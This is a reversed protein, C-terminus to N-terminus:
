VLRGTRTIFDDQVEKSLNIFCENWGCVRVQLNQYEEPHIQADKLTKIDVVNGQIAFGGQRFYVKVLSTLADLGKNGQVASQHLVFDLVAADLFYEHNLKTVSQIYGTIGEREMGNGPRMNKSLPERDFRGDPTAGTPRRWM